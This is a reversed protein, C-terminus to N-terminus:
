FGSHGSCSARSKGRFVRTATAMEAHKVQQTWAEETDNACDFGCSHQRQRLGSVASEFLFRLYLVSVFCRTVALTPYTVDTIGRTANQRFMSASNHYPHLVCAPLKGKIKEPRRCSFTCAGAPPQPDWFSELSEPGLTVIHSEMHGSSRFAAEATKGGGAIGKGVETKCASRARLGLNSM